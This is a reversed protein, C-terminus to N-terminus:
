FIRRQNVKNFAIHFAPLFAEKKAQTVAYRAWSDLETYYTRKLLVFCGVDLPQLLHSSHPPMYLTIIKREECYKHFEHNSHSKHGGVILLRYAGITREKTHVDFHKLWRVGLENTTWGNDSTEIIWERSLGPYWSTILVKGSFIIFPPIAWGAACYRRLIAESRLAELSERLV